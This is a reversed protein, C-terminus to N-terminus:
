GYAELFNNIVVADQHFGVNPFLVMNEGQGLRLVSVRVGVVLIQGYDDCILLPGGSDGPMIHGTNMYLSNSFPGLGLFHGSVINLPLGFPHGSGYVTVGTEPNEKAIVTLLSDPIDNELKLLALDSDTDCAQVEAPYRIDQKIIYITQWGQVVHCATLLTDPGIFFGTGGGDFGVAVRVVNAQVWEVVPRPIDTNGAQTPALFLALLLVLVAKVPNVLSSRHWANFYYDM